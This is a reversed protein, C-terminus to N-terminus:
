VFLAAEPDALLLVKFGHLYVITHEWNPSLLDYEGM